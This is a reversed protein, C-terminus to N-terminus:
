GSHRNEKSTKLYVNGLKISNINPLNLSKLYAVGLEELANGKM